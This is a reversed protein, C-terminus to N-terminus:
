VSAAYTAKTAPALLMLMRNRNEPAPATPVSAERNRASPIKDFLDVGM